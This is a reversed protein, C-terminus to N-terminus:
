TGGTQSAGLWQSTFLGFPFAMLSGM